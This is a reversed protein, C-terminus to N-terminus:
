RHACKQILTRNLNYGCSVAQRLHDNDFFQRDVYGFIVGTGRARIRRCLGSFDSDNSLLLATQFRDDCAGEMMWAALNVDVGKERDDSMRHSLVLEGLGGSTDRIARLHSVNRDNSLAGTGTAADFGRVAAFCWVKKLFFPGGPLVPALERGLQTYRVKDPWGLGRLGIEFNPIDVFVELWPLRPKEAVPSPGPEASGEEPEAESM